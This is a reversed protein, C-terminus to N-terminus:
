QKFLIICNVTLHIYFSKLIAISTKTKTFYCTVLIQQVYYPRVGLSLVYFLPLYRYYSFQLLRLRIKIIICTIRDYQKVQRNLNNIKGKFRVEIVILHTKFVLIGM